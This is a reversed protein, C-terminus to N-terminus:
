QPRRNLIRLNKIKKKSEKTSSKEPKLKTTITSLRNLMMKYDVFDRVMSSIQSRRYAKWKIEKGMITKGLLGKSVVKKLEKRKIARVRVRKLRQIFNNIKHM